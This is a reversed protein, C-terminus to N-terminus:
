LKQSHWDLKLIRLGGQFVFNAWIGTVHVSVLGVMM